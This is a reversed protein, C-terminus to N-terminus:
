RYIKPAELREHIQNVVGPEMGTAQALQHLYQAEPNGDLDIAMLSMAYVQQEM